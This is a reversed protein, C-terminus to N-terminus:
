EATGANELAEVRAELAAFATDMNSAMGAAETKTLAEDELAAVRAELATIIGQFTETATQIAATVTKDVYAKPVLQNAATPDPVNAAQTQTGVTVKGSFWANGSRDLTHANSRHSDNYGNGVIVLYGTDNANWSGSVHQHDGGAITGFGEAHSYKGTAMCRDGEAHSGEGLAVTESGEAHSGKGVALTHMGEAHSATEGLAMTKLGEAHASYLGEGGQLSERDIPVIVKEYRGEVRETRLASASWRNIVKAARNATGDRGILIVSKGVIDNPLPVYTKETTYFGFHCYASSTGTEQVIYVNGYVATAYSGNALAGAGAAFCNDGVTLMEGTDEGEYSIRNGVSLAPAKLEGTMSDGGKQVKDGTLNSYYKANNEFAEDGSEVPVGNRTGAAWAEADLAKAEASDGAIEAYYKANNEFTEDSSGVALGERTGTAWAEADITKDAAANRAEEAGTKAQGALAADNSASLAYQEALLRNQDAEQAKTQVLATNAGVDDYYEKSKANLQEINTKAAAAAEEAATVRELTEAVVGDEIEDRMANFDFLTKKQSEKEDTYRWSLVRTEDDYDIVLSEGKAGTLSELWERETGVFGHKVAIGYATLYYGRWRREVQGDSYNSM